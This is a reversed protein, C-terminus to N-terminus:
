AIEVALSGYVSRPKKQQLDTIQRSTSINRCLAFELTQSGRQILERKGDLRLNKLVSILKKTLL